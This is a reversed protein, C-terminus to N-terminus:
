FASINQEFFTKASTYEKGTINKFDDSYGATWGQKTIYYLEMMADIMWLPMQNDLISKRAIEEEVDIYSIKRGLVDSLTKALIENTYTQGSLEYTKGFHLNSTLAIAVLEGLDNIDLMSLKADGTPLYFGNYQKITQSHFNIFNQLFTYPRVITYNLDSAKVLDESAGAWRAMQIKGKSDAGSATSRVLHKVNNLKSANIVMQTVAEPNQMLPTVLFVRDKGKLAQNLSEQNAFDVLIPTAALESVKSFKKESRIGAFVLVNKNQLNKIVATGINGTAGLVIVKEM